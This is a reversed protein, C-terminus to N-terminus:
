EQKISGSVGGKKDLDIRFETGGDDGASGSLASTSGSGDGSEGRGLAFYGIALVAVLLGGALFYLPSTSSTSATESM